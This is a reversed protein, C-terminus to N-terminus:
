GATLMANAKDTKNTPKVNEMFLVNQLNLNDKKEIKFVNILFVATLYTFTGLMAALIKMDLVCFRKKKEEEKQLIRM